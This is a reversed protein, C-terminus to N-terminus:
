TPHSLHPTLFRPGPDTKFITPSSSCLHPPHLDCLSPSPTHDVLFFFFLSLTISLLIPTVFCPLGATNQVQNYM